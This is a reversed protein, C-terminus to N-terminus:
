AVELPAQLASMQAVQCLWEALERPTQEREAKSLHPRYDSRKRSQIVYLAKGLVLPVRPLDAPKSGVIYLLTSKEARHGFQNQNVPMTWGGYADFKGPPTFRM